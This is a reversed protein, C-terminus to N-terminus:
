IAATSSPQKDPASSVMVATMELCGMTEVASLNSHRTERLGMGSVRIKMGTQVCLWPPFVHRQRFIHCFIVAWVWVQRTCTEGSLNRVPVLSGAPLVKRLVPGTFM